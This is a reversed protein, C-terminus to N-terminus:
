VNAKLLDLIECSSTSLNFGCRVVPIRKVIAKITEDVKGKSDQLWFNFYLYKRLYIRALEQPVKEVYTEESKDLICVAGIPYISNQETLSRWPITSYVPIPSNSNCLICSMEDTLGPLGLLDLFTSKGGGSYACCIYGMGQYLFTSAHLLTVGYCASVVRWLVSLILELSDECFSQMQIECRSLKKDTWAVMQEQYFSAGCSLIYGDKEIHWGLKPSIERTCVYENKMEVNVVMSHKCADTCNVYSHFKKRCYEMVVSYKSNIVFEIEAVVIRM